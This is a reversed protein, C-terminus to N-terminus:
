CIVKLVQWASPWFYLLPMSLVLAKDGHLKWKQHNFSLNLKYCMSYYCCSAQFCLLSPCFKHDLCVCISRSTRPPPVPTYARTHKTRPFPLLAASLIAQQRTISPTWTCHLTHRHRSDSKCLPSLATAHLCYLPHVSITTRHGAKPQEQLCYSAASPHVTGSLGDASGYKGEHALM